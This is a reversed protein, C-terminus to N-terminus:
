SWTVSQSSSHISETAHCSVFPKICSEVECEALIEQLEETFAAVLEDLNSDEDELVSDAHTLVFIANDWIKKGFAKILTRINREDISDLRQTLSM